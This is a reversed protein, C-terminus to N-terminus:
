HNDPHEHRWAWYRQQDTSHLRGFESYNRHNETTWRRYAQDENNNWNHYDKHHKDYYRHEKKHDDRDHDDPVPRAFSMPVALTALLALSSLTKFIRM